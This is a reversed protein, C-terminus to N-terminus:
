SIPPNEFRRFYKRTFFAVVLILMGYLLFLVSSDKLNIIIASVLYGVLAGIKAVGMYGGTTLGEKHISEGITSMYHWASTNWFGSLLGLFVAIIYISLLDTVFVISMLAISYSIVSYMIARGSGLRDSLFGGIFQLVYTIGVISAFIGVEVETARLREIILLPIFIQISPASFHMAAGLVGIGRLRKVSWFKQLSKLFNIRKTTGPHFTENKFLAGFLFLLIFVAGAGIFITRIPLFFVLFTGVLVGGLAGVSQISEFIGTLVGRRETIRDEVSQLAVLSFTSIGVASFIVAFSLTIASHEVFGFLILSLFSFIIATAIIVRRGFKDSLEGAFPSIIILSAPALAFTATILVQSFGQAILYPVLFPVYIKVALMFFAAAISTGLFYNKLM